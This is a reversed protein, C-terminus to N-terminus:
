PHDGPWHWSGPCYGPRHDGGWFGFHAPTRYTATEGSAFRALVDDPHGDPHAGTVTDEVCRNAVLAGAPAKVVRHVVTGVVPPTYRSM